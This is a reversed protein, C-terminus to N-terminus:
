QLKERVLKSVLGGDAKGKVKPMLAGMVKGMDSPNTAGTQTVAEDVLKKIEEESMQAPLYKELMEIEKAEKAVLDDRGGAKFQEVSDRRQKVQKQLVAEVDEETAEYGAGGKEIEFYGLASIVMRLASTRESDRALMSQKLAEKLEQKTM